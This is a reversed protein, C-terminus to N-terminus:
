LFYVIRKERFFALIVKFQNFKGLFLSFPKLPPVRGEQRIPSGFKFLNSDDQNAKIPLNRDHTDKKNPSVQM